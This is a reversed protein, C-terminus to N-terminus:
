TPLHSCHCPIPEIIVNSLTGGNFVNFFIQSQSFLLGTRPTRQPAGSSNSHTKTCCGGEESEKMWLCGRKNEIEIGKREKEDEM